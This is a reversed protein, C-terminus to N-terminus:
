HQLQRKRAKAKDRRQKILSKWEKTLIKAIVTCNECYTVGNSVTWEGVYKEICPTFGYKMWDEDSLYTEAVGTTAFIGNTFPEALGLQGLICDGWTNINLKKSDIRTFWDKGERKDLYVAGRRAARQIDLVVSKSLKLKTM